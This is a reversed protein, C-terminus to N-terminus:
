LFHVVVKILYFLDKLIIFLDQGAKFLNKRLTIRIGEISAYRFRYGKFEIFFEEISRLLFEKFKTTVPLHFGHVHMIRIGHLLEMCTDNTCERRGM